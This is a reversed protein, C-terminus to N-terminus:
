LIYSLCVHKKESCKVHFFMWVVFVSRSPLRFSEDLLLRFEAEPDAVQHGRDRSQHGGAYRVRHRLHRHGVVQDM